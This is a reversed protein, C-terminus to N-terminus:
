QAADEAQQLFRLVTYRSPRPLHGAGPREPPPAAARLYFLLGDGVTDTAMDSGARRGTALFVRTVASGYRNSWRGAQAACRLAIAPTRFVLVRFYGDARIEAASADTVEGLAPTQCMPAGVRSDYAGRGFGRLRAGIGYAPLIRCYTAVVTRAGDPLV